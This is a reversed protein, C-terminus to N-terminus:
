LINWYELHWEVYISGKSLLSLYILSLQFHCQQYVSFPGYAMYISKLVICTLHLFAEKLCVFYIFLFLFNMCPKNNFIPTENVTYWQRNCSVLSCSKWYLSICLIKIVFKKSYLHLNFSVSSQVNQVSVLSLRTWM